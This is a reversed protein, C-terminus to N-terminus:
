LQGPPFEGLSPLWLDLTSDCDFGRLHHQFVAVFHFCMAVMNRSDGYFTYCPPRWIRSYPVCKQTQNAVPIPHNM